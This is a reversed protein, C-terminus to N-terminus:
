ERLAPLDQPELIIGVITHPNRFVNPAQAGAPHEEMARRVAATVRALHPGSHLLVIGWWMM